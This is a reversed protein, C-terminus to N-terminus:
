IFNMPFLRLRTFVSSIYLLMWSSDIFFFTKMHLEIRLLKTLFPLNSLLMLNNWWIFCSPKVGSTIVYLVTDWKKMVYNKNGYHSDLYGTIFHEWSRLFTTLLHNYFLIKTSSAVSWDLSTWLLTISTLTFLKSNLKPCFWLLRVMYM